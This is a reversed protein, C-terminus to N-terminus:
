APETPAVVEFLAEVGRGAVEDKDRRADDMLLDVHGSALGEHEDDGAAGLLVDDDVDVQGLRDFIRDASVLPVGMGISMVFPSMRAVGGNVSSSTARRRTPSRTRNQPVM